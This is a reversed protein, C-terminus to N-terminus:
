YMGPILKRVRQRYASYDLFQAALWQEERRSKADFFAIAGFAVVLRALRGTALAGGLLMLIIGSYIPHRVVGYAGTQVLTGDEKPKPFPTLNRGLRLSAAILLVAGALASLYGCVQGIKRLAPPWAGEWRPAALALMLIIGQAVVWREGRDQRQNPM